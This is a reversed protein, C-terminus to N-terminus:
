KLKGKKSVLHSVVFKMEKSFLNPLCMILTPIVACIVIMGFYMQIDGNWPIMRIIYETTIGAAIFLIIYRILKEFYEWVSAHFFDKYLVLPEVWMSVSVISITTGIFVGATGIKRALIISFFLNVLSEIITKYRDNWFLGLSDRFIISAQRIGNLFLNICLVKTVLKPFVYEAGFSAAIFVDLLEYLSIAAVGYGVSVVFVAGLFVERVHNKDETAGLNGVSGAIAFVIREIVQRISGIILYYNSYMGVAIIGVIGTLTLNDINNIVVTGVKHMLMARLNRFVEKADEEPITDDSKEFVEPYEKGAQIYVAANQFLVALVYILLYLIYNRTLLLVVIQITNQLMLFTSDIIDNIYNRQNALFIMSRYMLFYSFVTRALFMGYILIVSQIEYTDSILIRVIPYMLIGLFFVVIAVIRYIQKYLRMLARQRPIDNHAVPEYISYVLATSIGLDALNLAGLINTNLGNIGAYAMSLTHTFVMRAFFGFVIALIKTTMAISANKMSYRTRTSLENKM